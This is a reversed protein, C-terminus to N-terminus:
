FTPCFQLSRFLREEKATISNGGSTELASIFFDGGQCGGTDGKAGMARHLCVEADGVAHGGRLAHPRPPFPQPDRGWDRPRDGGPGQVAGRALVDHLDLGLQSDIQTLSSRLVDFFIGGVLRLTTATTDMGAIFVDFMSNRMNMRGLDGKFSSEESGENAEKMKLLYSDVFDRVNDPDFTREHNAIEAELLRDVSRRASLM